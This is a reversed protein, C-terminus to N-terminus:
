LWHIGVQNLNDLVNELMKQLCGVGEKLIKLSQVLEHNATLLSYILHSNHQVAQATNNTVMMLSRADVKMHRYDHAIKNIPLGNFNLEVFNAKVETQWALREEVTINAFSYVKELTVTFPHRRNKDDWRGKPDSLVFEGFTHNHCIVTLALLDFM